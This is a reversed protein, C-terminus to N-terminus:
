GGVAALSAEVRVQSSKSGGATSSQQVTARELRWGQTALTALWVTWDDFNVTGQINLQSPGTRVFELPLNHAKMSASVLEVEVPTKTADRIAASFAGLQDGMSQMTALRASAEPLSKQLRLRESRQWEDVKLVVVVCLIVGCWGALRREGPQM